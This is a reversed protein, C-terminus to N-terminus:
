LHSSDFTTKMRVASEAFEAVREFYAAESFRQLYTAASASKITFPQHSLREILIEFSAGNDKRPDEYLFGTVGDLVTETFPPANIALVPTGCIQAEVLNLGLAESDPIGALLYDIEKYVTSVSRQYGWFRVRGHIAKSARRMDRVTAYGGAGFIDLNVHPYRELIPVICSLLVPFQKINALRSVIGLTIGPKRAYPRKPLLRAYHPYLWGLLRDRVKRPDWGYPSNAQIPQNAGGESTKLHDAIGWLPHPHFQTINAAVLSDLVYQSVGGIWDYHKLAAPSRGFLTMHAVCTLFHGRQRFPLAQTEYFNMHFLVWSLAPLHSLIEGYSRVPIVTCGEPLLRHLYSGPLVFVTTPVDAAILARTFSITYIESGGWGDYLNVQYCTTM